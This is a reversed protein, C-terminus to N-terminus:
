TLVGMMRPMAVDMTGPFVCAVVPM